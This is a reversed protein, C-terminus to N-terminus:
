AATKPSPLQQALQVQLTTATTIEPAGPPRDRKKDPYPRTRKPGQRVYADRVAQRLRHTLSDGRRGRHAPDRLAARLCALARAMSLRLPQQGDHLLAQLSVLRLLTLGVMTWRLELAAQVPAASLMRRRGLTQKLTRYFVEVHWRMAYLQGAQEDSLRQADTVNTLLYIPKGRRLLRIVRLVLPPQQGRRAAHPWLYVTQGDERAYGLKRLLRVNAGVRVLFFRDSDHLMRLLEYGVFGADGLLLSAEPTLSLMSRLHARESARAPGVRYSWVAGSALHLLCTLLAQPACKNKGACGFAGENAVTRPLNIKTGDVTFVVFGFMTWCSSVAQRTAERLHREIQRLLRSSAERLAKIFGQYTKGVRRRSPFLQALTWCVSGFRATLSDEASWSMLVAAWALM